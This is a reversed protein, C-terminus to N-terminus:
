EKSDDTTGATVKQLESIQKKLEEIEQMMSSEASKYNKRNEEIISEFIKEFDDNQEFIYVSRKRDPDDRDPKLDIMKAGKHLLQRAIQAKRIVKGKPAVDIEKEFTNKQTIINM